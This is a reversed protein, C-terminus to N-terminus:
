RHNKYKLSGRNLFRVYCEYCLPKSKIKLYNINIIIIKKSKIAIISHFSKM